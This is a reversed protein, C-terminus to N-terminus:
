LRDLQGPDALREEPVVERRALSRRRGAGHRRARARCGGGHGLRLAGHADLNARAAAGEEEDDTDHIPSLWRANPNEEPPTSHPGARSGTSATQGERAGRGDDRDITPWRTARRKPAIGLDTGQVTDQHRERPIWRLGYTPERTSGAGCTAAAPADGTE